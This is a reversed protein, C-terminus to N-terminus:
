KEAAVAEEAFAVYVTTTTASVDAMCIQVRWKVTAPAVNRRGSKQGCVAGKLKEVQWWPRKPDSLTAMASLM